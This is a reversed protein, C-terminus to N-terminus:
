LYGNGLVRLLVQIGERQNQRNERYEPGYFGKEFDEM